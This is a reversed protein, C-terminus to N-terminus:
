RHRLTVMCIKVQMRKDAAKGLAKAVSSSSGFVKVQSPSVDGTVSGTKVVVEVRKDVTVFVTVRVTVSVEVCAPVIVVGLHVVDCLSSAM